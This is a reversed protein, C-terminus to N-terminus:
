PVDIPGRGEAHSVFDAVHAQILPSLDDHPDATRAATFARDGLQRATEIAAVRAEPDLSVIHRLNGTREHHRDYDRWDDSMTILLGFAAAFEGATSQAEPRGGVVAALQGYLSLFTAGYFHAHDLWQDLTEAPYNKTRVQGKTFELLVSDLLETVGLGNGGVATMDHIGRHLTVLMGALLDQQELGSDEDWVDDVLKMALLHLSIANEVSDRREQRAWTSMMYPIRFYLRMTRMHAILEAPSEAEHLVAELHDQVAGQSRDIRRQLSALQPWDFEANRM